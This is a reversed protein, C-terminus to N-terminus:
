TKRLHSLALTKDVLDPRGLERGVDLGLALLFVVDEVGLFRARELGGRARGPLDAVAVAGGRGAGHAGVGDGDAAQDDLVLGDLQRVAHRGLEDLARPVAQQPEGKAADVRHLRRGDLRGDLVHDRLVVDRARRRQERGLQGRPAVGGVVLGEVGEAEDVLRGDLGRALFDMVRRDVAALAEPHEVRGRGGDVAPGELARAVAGDGVRAGGEGEDVVVGAGGDVVGDRAGAVVALELAVDVRGVRGGRVQGGDGEGDAALLEGHALLVQAEGLRPRAVDVAADLAAAVQAEIDQPVREELPDIGDEVDAVHAEPGDLPLLRRLLLM